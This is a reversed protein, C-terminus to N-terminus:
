KKIVDASTQPELNSSEIIAEGVKYDAINLNRFTTLSSDKEAFQRMKLLLKENDLQLSKTRSIYAQWKIKRRANQDIGDLELVPNDKYGGITFLEPNGALVTKPNTLLELVPNIYAGSSWITVNEFTQLKLWSAVVLPGPADDLIMVSRDQSIASHAIAAMSPMRPSLIITSPHKDTTSKYSWFALGREDSIFKVRRVEPSMRTHGIWPPGLAGLIFALMSVYILKYFNDRKWLLGWVALITVVFFILAFPEIKKLHDTFSTAVLWCVSMGMLGAAMPKKNQLWALYACLLVASPVMLWLGAWWWGHVATITQLDGLASNWMMNNPKKDMWLLYGWGFSESGLGSSGAIASLQCAGSWVQLREDWSRTILEYSLRKHLVTTQGVYFLLFSSWFSLFFIRSRKEYILIIFLGIGAALFGAKSGTVSLAYALMGALICSVVKKWIYNKGYNFSTAALCAILCILTATHNPNDFLLTWRM